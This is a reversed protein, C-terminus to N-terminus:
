RGRSHWSSPKTTETTTQKQQSREKKLDSKLKDIELIKTSIDKRLRQNESRLVIIEERNSPTTADVKPKKTLAAALKKNEASTKTLDATLKENQAQLAQM